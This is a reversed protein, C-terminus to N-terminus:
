GPTENVGRGKWNPPSVRRTYDSLMLNFSISIRDRGSQNPPVAHELWSPFVILRGAAVDVNTQTSNALNGETRRPAIIRTQPRPDYFDIREAGGGARVYYVGSLLNNPHTHIGHPAGPPNVNAWCGTIEFSQEALKLFEIVGKGALEILAVLEAFEPRLHLDQSTQWTHGPPIAPRPAILAEIAAELRGNLGEAADSPLDHLWCFTPFLTMAQTTKFM